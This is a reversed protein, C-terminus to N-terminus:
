DPKGSVSDILKMFVDEDLQDAIDRRGQPDMVVVRWGIFDDTVLMVEEKKGFLVDEKDGSVDIRGNYGIKNIGKPVIRVLRRGMRIEMQETNYTGACMESISMKLRKSKVSDKKKLPTLWGDIRDFLAKVADRYKIVREKSRGMVEKDEDKRRKLSKEPIASSTGM